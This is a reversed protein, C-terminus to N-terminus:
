CVRLKEIWRKIKKPKIRQSVLFEHLKVYDVERFQFGQEYPVVEPNKFM